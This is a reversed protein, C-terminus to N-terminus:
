PPPAKEPLSGVFTSRDPASRRGTPRWSRRRPRGRRGTRPRSRRRCRSRGASRAERDLREPRALDRVRVDLAEDLVVEVQSRGRDDRRQVQAARDVALGGRVAVEAAPGRGARPASRCPRAARRGVRADGFRLRDGGGSAARARGRGARGLLEARRSRGSAREVARQDQASDGGSVGVAGVLIATGSSRCAAPSSSRGAAPSPTSLRLVRHRAPRDAAPRRDADPQRAGHLGQGPRPHDRRPGRRGDARVAVLQDGSDVVACSMAVRM